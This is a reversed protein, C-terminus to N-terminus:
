EKKFLLYKEHNTPIFPNGYLTYATNYKRAADTSKAIRKKDIGAQIKIIEYQFCEQKSLILESAMDYM